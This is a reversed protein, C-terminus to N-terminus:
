SSVLRRMSQCSVRCSTRALISMRSSCASACCITIASNRAALSSLRAADAFGNFIIDGSNPDPSFRTQSYRIFPAVQVDLTDGAYQYALVGYHTIERQNQDLKASDFDSVGNVTFAPEQGPVNPIQFHGIATGGFATIRSSPSLIDSVYGFARYQRTRDHIVERTPLPNEIGLDDKLYSGSLFYSLGGTSGQVMASPEITSHSGGYVGIDASNELLGSRTKFNIVGSTRYGYQAPLTGTILDISNAIRSDFTSGFGAISEPIIVGNLRYQLNAHENRVHVVGYSDQSVGPAQLLVGVLSTNDGGPQKDLTDRNFTYTSAGLSPSISDRAVDLRRGTIIIENSAATAPSADPSTRSKAASADAPPAPSPQAFADSGSSVANSSTASSEAFVPQHFLAMASGALLVTRRM